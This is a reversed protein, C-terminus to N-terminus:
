TYGCRQKYDEIKYRELSMRCRRCKIGVKWVIVKETFLVSHTNVYVSKLAQWTEKMNLNTTSALTCGNM